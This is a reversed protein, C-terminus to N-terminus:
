KKLQSATIKMECGPCICIFADTNWYQADAVYKPNLGMELFEYKQYLLKKQTHNMQALNELEFTQLKELNNIRKIQEELSLADHLTATERLTVFDELTLATFYQDKVDVWWLHVRPGKEFYDARFVFQSKGTFTNDKDYSTNVKRGLIEEFRKTSIIVYLDSRDFGICLFEDKNFNIKEIWDKQVEIQSRKKPDKTRTRKKCEIEFFLQDNWARVDHKGLGESIQDSAGSLPNREAEWGARKLFWDRVRYEFATGQQKVRKGGSMYLGKQNGRDCYCCRAAM